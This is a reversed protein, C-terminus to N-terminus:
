SRNILAANPRRAAATLRRPTRLPASAKAATGAATVTNNGAGTAILSRRHHAAKIPQGASSTGTQRGSRCRRPREVAEKRGRHASRCKVEGDQGGGQDQLGLLVLDALGVGLREDVQSLLLALQLGDVGIDVGDGVQQLFVLGQGLEQGVRHDVGLLFTSNQGLKTLLRAELGVGVVKEVQQQLLVAQAQQILDALAEFLSVALQGVGLHPMIAHHRGRHRLLIPRSTLARAPPSAPIPLM